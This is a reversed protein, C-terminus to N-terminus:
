SGEREGAEVDVRRIPRAWPYRTGSARGERELRVMQLEPWQTLDVGQLRLLEELETTSLRERRMSRHHMRGASMLSVADGEVLAYVRRSYVAALSVLSRVLVLGGAAAIFTAAPVVGLVFDDILDSIILALVLTRGSLQSVAEKGSIRLLFLLFVWACAARIAIAHLEM